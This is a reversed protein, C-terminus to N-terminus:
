PQESGPSKAIEAAFSSATGSRLGKIMQLCPNAPGWLEPFEELPCFGMAQYFERTRAYNRDPHAASLTKVQLYEFGRQRLHREAKNLLARGVGRRHIEPKVAMVHIEASYRNHDRLTLFGVTEGNFSALLTPLQKIDEIYQRNAEEIGFWEPLAALIPACVASKNLFPGQVNATTEHCSM